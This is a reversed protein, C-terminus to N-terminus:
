AKSELNFAVGSKVIETVNITPMLFNNFPTNETRSHLVGRATGITLMILHRMFDVPITLKTKDKNKFSEWADDVIKFHCAIELVLFAKKDQYFAPSVFVAVMKDKENIGYKANVSFQVDEGEKFASEIIAFQETTIKKLSFGIKNSM